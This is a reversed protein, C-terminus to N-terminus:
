RVWAMVALALLAALLVAVLLVPVFYLRAHRRDQVHAPHRALAARWGLCDIGTAARFAEYDGANGHELQALATSNLPGGALDGVRAVLVVLARPITIVAAPPLGLWRRYDVLIERLTVVDPGVPDVTRGLLTTSELAQAVVRALDDVHIPQFGHGRGAPVPIAFPLAAMGRFLATGGHAGRAHVLSPRLVVWELRSSRLAQEGALKTAAYGTGADADASIASILVVRRVGASECARYLAAPGRHHIDAGSQAGRDQLIGACNVVADIGALRPMWAAPDVDRALDAHLAPTSAFPPESGPRRVVPVVAHGRAALAAFLERGIFGSAGLLLIRM